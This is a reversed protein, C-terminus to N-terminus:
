VRPALRRTELTALPPGGAADRVSVVVCYLAGVDSAQGCRRTEVRWVDDGDQGELAGEALPKDSGAQALASKAVMLAYLRTEVQRRRVASDALVQFLGGLVLALLLLAALTEVFVSGAEGDAAPERARATM